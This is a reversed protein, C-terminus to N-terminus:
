YDVELAGGVERPVKTLEIGLDAALRTARDSWGLGVDNYVHELAKCAHEGDIPEESALTQLLHRPIRHLSNRVGSVAMSSSVEGLLANYVPVERMSAQRIFDADSLRVHAPKRIKELQQLAEV